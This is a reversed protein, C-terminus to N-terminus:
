LLGRQQYHSRTEEIIEDIGRDQGPTLPKSEHKAILEEIAAGPKILQAFVIGAILEVNNTITSGAITAPGTGGM